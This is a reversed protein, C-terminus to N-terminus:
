EFVAMIVAENEALTPPATFVANTVPFSTEALVAGLYSARASSIGDSDGVPPSWAIVKFELLRGARIQTEAFDLLDREGRESLSVSGAEFRVQVTETRSSAVPPLDPNSLAPTLFALLLVLIKM